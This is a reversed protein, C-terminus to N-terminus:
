TEEDCKDCALPEDVMQEQEYYDYDSHSFDSALNTYLLYALLLSIGLLHM